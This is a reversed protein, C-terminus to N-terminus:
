SGMGGFSTPEIVFIVRKEEPGRRYPDKDVGM